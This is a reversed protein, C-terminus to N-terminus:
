EAEVRVVVRVRRAASGLEPIGLVLLAGAMYLGAVAFFSLELGREISSARATLATITAVGVTGGLSSFLGRLGAVAPIRDPALDIAANQMSPNGSGFGLGLMANVLTLWAFDALRLGGLQPDHIGLALVALVAAQSWMGIFIPRRYGTRPLVLAAAMSTSVMALARPTLMVGTESASLGNSTHVYLPVFSFMGIFCFGFCFALANAFVFERRRLLDVDVISDASRSERLVLLGLLGVALALMGTV